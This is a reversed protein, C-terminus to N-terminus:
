FSHSISATIYDKDTGGGVRADGMYNVYSLGIATGGSTANVGLSLSMRDEVFGGLSSPGYGRPDHAFAFNPSLAWRTNNFNNYTATGVLRYSFSREDAGPQEECFGGNGFLGDHISAGLSAVAATGAAPTMTTGVAGMCKAPADGSASYGGRAVYGNTNDLDNIQVMAIETIFAASDAGLGVTVPDSATFSTTTGVDLSLVDYEIFPTSYYDGATVTAQSIEPLSSRKFDRVANSYGNSDGTALDTGAKTLYLLAQLQDGTADTADGTLGRNTNTGLANLGTYAVWNLMQTAGSADAIQNIQSSAPTALPFDPRFAVEGQVVTSGVNTSFSAGLIQNDEPYIFQYRANNLPTIAALIGTATVELAFNTDNLTGGGGSALDAGDATASCAASNHILAREGDISTGFTRAMYLAKQQDTITYKTLSSGTLANITSAGAPGGFVASCVTGGYAVDKIATYLDDGGNTRLAGDLVGLQPHVAYFGFADTVTARMLAYYDGAFMNQQGMIRVYPAKSHYNAYYFSLDVGTGVDDLYTGVRFGYEGGDEAYVHKQAHPLIEVGARQLDGYFDGASIDALSAAFGAAGASYLVETGAGTQTSATENTGAAIGLTANGATLVLNDQLDSGLGQDGAESGFTIGAFQSAALTLGSSNDLLDTYADDLQNLTSTARARSTALATADCLLSTQASLNCTNGGATEYDFAGGAYLSGSGKGIFDSGFFTGSPDVQVQKAQFQYYGELSLGNADTSITIQETPMLAERISAGPGRIKSLDLANTVLGNAGVPIFTAEGWNTAFRGVQYDVFGGDASDVSGTVYADYISFDQEFATEAGSTLKKFAPSTIDLAPNYSASYSLEVGLGDPTSGTISGFIKQKASFIDGQGFNLSGDDANPQTGQYNNYKSATNGWVDTWYPITTETLACGQGNGAVITSVGSAIGTETYTYGTYLDCDYDSVRMSFGSTVTHNATGSFGPLNIDVAYASGFFSLVYILASSLSTKIINPRM